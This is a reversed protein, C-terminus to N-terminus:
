RGDMEAYFQIRCYEWYFEIGSLLFLECLWLCTESYLNFVSCLLLLFYSQFHHRVVFSRPFRGRSSCIPLCLYINTIIIPFLRAVCLVARERRGRPPPRM